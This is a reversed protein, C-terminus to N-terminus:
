QNMPLCWFEDVKVSKKKAEEQRKMKHLRDIRATQTGHQGPQRLHSLGRVRHSGGVQLRIITAHCYSHPPCSVSLLVGAEHGMSWMGRWGVEDSEYNPSVSAVVGTARSSALSACSASVM